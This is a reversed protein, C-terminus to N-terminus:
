LIYPPYFTFRGFKFFIFDPIGEIIMTRYTAISIVIMM